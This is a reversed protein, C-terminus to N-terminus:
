ASVTGSAAALEAGLEDEAASVVVVEVAGEGGVSVGFMVERSEVDLPVGRRGLSDLAPVGVMIPLMERPPLCCFTWGVDRAESLLLVVVVVVVLVSAILSSVM